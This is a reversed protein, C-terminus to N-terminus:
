ITKAHLAAGTFVILATVPCMTVSEAANTTVYHSRRRQAEGGTLLGLPLEVNSLSVTAPYVLVRSTAELRRQALFLGFPDGSTIM